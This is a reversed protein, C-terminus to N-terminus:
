LSLKPTLNNYLERVINERQAMPYSDDFKIDIPDRSLPCTSYLLKVTGFHTFVKEEYYDVKFDCLVSVMKDAAKHNVASSGFMWWDHDVKNKFDDLTMNLRKSQYNEIELDMVNIFDMYSNVNKLPGEIGLSMQHQMLVSSPMVYRNDCYQFIVFGMSLAVNGICTVKVGSRQLAQITQVIQMGSTVSGGNSAIFIYLEKTKSKMLSDTIKSSSMGNIQGRIVVHNDETLKIVEMSNARVAFVLMILVIVTILYKM